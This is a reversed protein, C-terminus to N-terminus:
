VAQSSGLLGSPEEFKRVSHNTSREQEAKKLAEHIRSM